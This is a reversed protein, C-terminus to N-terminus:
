ALKWKEDPLVFDGPGSDSALHPRNAHRRNCRAAIAIGPGAAFYVFTADMGKGPRHMMISVLRPCIGAIRYGNGSMAPRTTCVSTTPRFRAWRHQRITKTRMKRHTGAIAAIQWGRHWKFVEYKGIQFAQNLMVEHAPYGQPIMGCSDSQSQLGSAEPDPSGMTFRGAPLSVMTPQLYYIGARALLMYFGSRVTIGSIYIWVSFFLISMVMIVALNTIIIRRLIQRRVAGLYEKALESPSRANRYHKLMRPSPIGPFRPKEAKEWGMAISELNDEAIMQERNKDIWKKMTEWDTLLAEHALDVDCKKPEHETNRAACESIVILRVNTADVPNVQDTGGALRNLVREADPGGGAARLATARSITRRTPPSDYSIKVLRLLLAKARRKGTTGLSNILRDASEALAGGVGRLSHYVRRQLKNGDRRQWLLMMLNSVLPLANPCDGADKVIQKRLTPEDWNLKARLMPRDITEFLGAEGIPKLRYRKACRYSLSGLRPMEDIPDPFDSRITTILYFRGDRGRLASAVLTDLKERIESNRTQTFVEELQDLVLLFCHKDPLYQRVLDRLADPKEGHLWENLESLMPADSLGKLAKALNLVPDHGPRMIAILWNRMPYGFPEIPWGERLKPIIGAKVLSSKGVGSPGDIQLWRQKGNAPRRFFDTTEKIERNRGFYFDANHEDFSSLGAFPCRDDSRAKAFQNDEESSIKKAIKKAIDRYEDSTPEAPLKESKINKLLAQLDNPTVGHMRLRVFGKLLLTLVAGGEGKLYDFFQNQSEDRTAGTFNL